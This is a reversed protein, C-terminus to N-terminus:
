VLVEGIDPYGEPRVQLGVDISGYGLQLVVLESSLEENEDLLEDAQEISEHRAGLCSWERTVHLNIREDSLSRRVKVSIAREVDSPDGM